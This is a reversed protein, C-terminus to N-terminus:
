IKILMLEKNLIKKIIKKLPRKEINRKFLPAICPYLFFCSTKKKFLAFFCRAVICSLIFYIIDIAIICFAFFLLVFHLLTICYWLLMSLSNKYYFSLIFSLLYIYENTSLHISLYFPIYIYQTIFLYIFKYIFVNIFFKILYESM